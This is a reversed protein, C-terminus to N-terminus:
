DTVTIITNKQTKATYLAQDARMLLENLDRNTRLPVIGASITLRYPLFATEVLNRIREMVERANEVTIGSFIIAFEDGGWRTVIDTSKANRKLITALGSLLEDGVTHGYSDNIAKFGDVDIMAVCLQARQGTSRLRQEQLMLYFYRRNWLGTLFDTHSIISLKRILGGIVFGGVSFVFTIGTWLLGKYSIQLALDLYGGTIGILTGLTSLILGAYNYFM